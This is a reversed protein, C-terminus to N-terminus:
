TVEMRRSLRRAIAFFLIGNGLLVLAPVILAALPEERWFVRTYGELAWANFLVLGAKQWSEPMLFRPFMSGGLASVTLVVLTSIASLQARTKTLSAIFLGFAACAFASVVTMVIFGPLHSGLELKFLLAGWLFMVTLQVVGVTWLYLLKGLLLQTFTLRTSLIRDLTGSEQEELLAGGANTATFLLFMVGIGAAYFAIIPNKKTGGVVDRTVINVPSQSGETAQALPQKELEARNRDLTARQQPTLGGSWKDVADIGGGIMLDPVGTMVTKQLLGSVIQPAIPDSSDALVHVTPRSSTKEGFQITTAGFGKPIVVAVAIEGSRVYEEASRADFRASGKEGDDEVVKLGGEAKLAAILARSRKTNDEDAVAVRVKGTSRRQAGFVGAFISFFVIPVVFSLMLAARDRRLNMWGTRAVALIL